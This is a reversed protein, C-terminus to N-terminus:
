YRQQPPPGTPPPYDYANAPAQSFGHYATSGQGIQSHSQPKPLTEMEADQSDYDEDDEDVIGRERKIEATAVKM